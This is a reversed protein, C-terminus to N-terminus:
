RYFHVIGKQQIHPRADVVVKNRTRNENVDNAVVDGLCCGVGNGDDTDDGCTDATAVWIGDSSVSNM